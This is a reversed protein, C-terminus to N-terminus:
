LDSQTQACVKTYEQGDGMMGSKTSNTHIESSINQLRSINGDRLMQSNM